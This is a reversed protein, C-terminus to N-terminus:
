IQIESYFIKYLINNNRLYKMLSDHEKLFYKIKINKNYKLFYKSHLVDLKDKKSIIFLIKKIHSFKMNKLNKYKNKNQIKLIENKWRQDNYKNRTKKDIFVQPSFSIIKDAQLLNGFLLSAYGGMSMGTTILLNYNIKKIINKLKIVTEDISNSLGYIGNTYWSQYRDKVFILHINFNSTLFTKFEYINVGINGFFGGFIILLPLKEKKKIDLFIDM